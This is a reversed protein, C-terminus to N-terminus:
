KLVEDIKAIIGNDRDIYTLWDVCEGLLEKLKANEELLVKWQEHVARWLEYSPVPAIIEKIESVETFFDKIVTDNIYDYDESYDSPFINDFENKVYYFGSPLEGKKWQETLTDCLNSQQVDKAKQTKSDTM